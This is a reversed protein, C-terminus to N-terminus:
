VRAQARYNSLMVSLSLGKPGAIVEAILDLIAGLDDSEKVLDKWLNVSRQLAARQQLTKQASENDNWFDPAAM